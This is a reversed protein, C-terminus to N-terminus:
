LCFPERPHRREITRALMYQLERPTPSSYWGACRFWFARLESADDAFLFWDAGDRIQKARARTAPRRNLWAGPFRHGAPTHGDLGIFHDVFAQHLVALALTEHSDDIM